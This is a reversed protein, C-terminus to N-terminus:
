ANALAQSAFQELSKSISRRHAEEIEGQSLRSELEMRLQNARDKTEQASAPHQSLYLVLEFTEPAPKHNTELFALGILADIAIPILGGQMAMKLATQFSSQADATDGLALSNLGQHNLTRALRHDGAERFLAASELYFARAEEYNGEGYAVKGLGDFALGMAFRYNTKRALALGEYLLKRAERYEGLTQLMRGFYSLVHATMSPDGLQRILVLAESFYQRAQEYEGQEQAIRGLFEVALVEHWRAKYKRALMVGTEFSEKAESFKGLIWCDVGLYWLSYIAASPEANTRLFAVSPELIDYAEENRGQRLKFYGSHALMAHLATQQTAEEPQASELSAQIVQVTREFIIEGEKFWDYLTFLYLFTFSVRYLATFRHNALSWDWAARLNDIESMLEALAAVQEHGFLKTENEDLRDLYHLSHREEVAHMEDPDEALKTAAYQRILEHLDYRGSVSRRILSRIVLSSLVSLSAGAVQEAAQRQFGGRFVSFRALSQKEERSLMQWSQDFVVRMSRHREPVDRLQANLFDLSREIEETIERPSLVRVWTAALEIALPMGEVLHCLRAVSTKDEANMEFGPYARRARQVFLAVASYGDLGDTSVSSPVSLGHVEFPWEDQLKLLERSTVLLKLGPVQQLIDILLEAVTGRIPGEALLQEVNDVVLLMQKERLYNLLQVKPDSPGYFAFQIANAAALIVADFSDVSALSVFASGDSFKHKSQNAAQLALRTKGIGGPGVLTICRCEPDALWRELDSLEQERGFFPTLPMPLQLAPAAVTEPRARSKAKLTGARIQEYLDHTKASPEVGLEEALIRKCTEFQALASSRQGDLALLRMIQYHAEERWPDLELQRLAYRQASQFEGHCEYESALYTLAEMLQQRSAERRVVIWDEFETSDPIYFHQLFEGRYLDVMKELESLSTSATELEQKRKKDWRSFCGDFVALDLSFDSESNFQISTRSILLYPPRATHDGLRLRLNFLAQRLNHRAAEETCDPWLLGILAERPHPRAAEVALYALLARVKDSEFAEIPVNDILVQFTGLANITLHAM